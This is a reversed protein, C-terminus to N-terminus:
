YSLVTRNHDADFVMVEGYGRDGDASLLNIGGVPDNLSFITLYRRPGQTVRLAVARSDDVDKGERPQRVAVKQVSFDAAENLGIVTLMAGCATVTHRTEVAMAPEITNYSRSIQSPILALTDNPGAVSVLRARNAVSQYVATCGDVQQLTGLNNFHFRRICSHEGTGYLSDCIVLIDPKLVVVQRRLFLGDDIYGLHGGSVYYYADDEYSHGKLPKAVVGYRWSACCDTFHKGNVTITNHALQSKLYRRIDNNVYTYRGSDILVDEGNAFLDIHLLDAHGHGSSLPGCKFALLTASEQWGSRWIYNGSAEMAASDYTPTTPVIACYVADADAGLRWLNDFDLRDYAGFRLEGSSFLYAGLTLIDRIDTDDSDCRMLQRHNPKVSYLTAYCMGLTQELMSQSPVRDHERLLLINELCCWLVEHHYMPSQEWHCGDPLVQVEIQEDLRRLLTDCQCSYDGLGHDQLFFCAALAGTNALVGWNSMFLTDNYSDLLYHIHQRLSAATLELFGAPLTTVRELIHLAWVWNSARIGSDITRWTNKGDSGELPVRQIFSTMTDILGDLYKQQRTIAYAQALCVIYRHRSLMVTWELDDKPMYEWDIEGDFQVPVTTREMDWRLTFLFRRQCVDDAIQLCEALSKFHLKHCLEVTKQVNFHM